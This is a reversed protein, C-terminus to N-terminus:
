VQPFKKELLGNIYNEVRVITKWEAAKLAKSVMPQSVKLAKSVENENKIKKYLEVTRFQKATLGKKVVFLLSILVNLQEALERDKLVFYASQRHKMANKLARTARNLAGKSYREEGIGFRTQVPYAIEEIYQLLEYVGRLGSLGVVIRNTEESSEISRFDKGFREGIREAIADIDASDRFEVIVCVM